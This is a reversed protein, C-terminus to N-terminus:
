RDFNGIRAKQHRSEWRRVGLSSAMGLVGLGTGFIMGEGMLVYTDHTAIQSGIYAGLPAIGAFLDRKFGTVSPSIKGVLISLLGSGAGYATITLLTETLM